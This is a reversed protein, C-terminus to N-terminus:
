QLIYQLHDVLIFGINKPLFLGIERNLWGGWVSLRM